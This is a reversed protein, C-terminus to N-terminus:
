FDLNAKKVGVDEAREAMAAPLFADIKIENPM